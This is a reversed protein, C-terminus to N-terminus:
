RGGVSVCVCRGRLYEHMNYQALHMSPADVSQASSGHCLLAKYVFSGEGGACSYFYTFLLHFDLQGQFDVLFVHIACTHQHM